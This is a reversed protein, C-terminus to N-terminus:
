VDAQEKLRGNGTHTPFWRVQLGPRAKEKGGDTAADWLEERERCGLCTEFDAALPPDPLHRWKGAEDQYKWQWSYTGCQTCRNVQEALWVALKARDM